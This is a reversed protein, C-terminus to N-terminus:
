RDKVIPIVNWTDSVLMPDLFIRRVASRCAHSDKGRPATMMAVDILRTDPGALHCLWAPMGGLGALVPRM